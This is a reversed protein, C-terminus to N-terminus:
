SDYKLFAPGNDSVGIQPAKSVEVDKRYFRQGDPIVQGELSGESTMVNLMSVVDEMEVCLRDSMPQILNINSEVM